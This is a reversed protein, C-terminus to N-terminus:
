WSEGLHGRNKVFEKDGFTRSVDKDSMLDFDGWKRM